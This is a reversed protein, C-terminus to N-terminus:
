AVTYKQILYSVFSERPKLLEKNYVHAFIYREFFYTSINLANIMDEKTIKEYSKATMFRPLVLLREAYPRGAEYSVAKGSKPSVFKLDHEQGTVACQSFELSYGAKALLFFEFEIYEKFNFGHKTLSQLFHEIHEFMGSVHERERFLISIISFISNVSLLTIYNQLLISSFATNLEARLSGSHESLRASWIFDILNGPFFINKNQKSNLNKVFGACVGHQASFVKVIGSTEQFRQLSLVFGNDKIEM